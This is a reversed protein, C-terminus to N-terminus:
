GGERRERLYAGGWWDGFYVRRTDPLLISFRIFVVKKKGGKGRERERERESKLFMKKM